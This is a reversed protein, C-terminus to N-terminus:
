RLTFQIRAESLPRYAKYYERTIVPIVLVPTTVDVVYMWHSLFKEWGAIKRLISGHMRWPAGKERSIDICDEWYKLNFKFYQCTTFKDYFNRLTNAYIVFPELKNMM